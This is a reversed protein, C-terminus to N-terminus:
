RSNAYTLWFKATINIGKNDISYDTSPDGVGLDDATIGNRNIM